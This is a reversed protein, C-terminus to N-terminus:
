ENLHIWSKDGGWGGLVKLWFSFIYMYIYLVPFSPSVNISQHHWRSPIDWFTVMSTKLPNSSWKEMQKEERNRTFIGMGASYKMFNVTSCYHVRCLTRELYNDQQEASLFCYVIIERHTSYKVIVFSLGTKRWFHILWCSLRFPLLFQFVQAAILMRRWNTTILEM